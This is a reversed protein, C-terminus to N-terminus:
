FEGDNAPSAEGQRAGSDRNANLAAKVEERLEGECRGHLKHLASRATERLQEDKHELAKLLAPVAGPNQLEGLAYAASQRLGADASSLLPALAALAQPSGTKGLAHCATNRISADRDKLMPVLRKLALPTDLAEVAILAQRRVKQLAELEWDKPKFGNRWRRSLTGAALIRSTTRPAKVLEQFFKLSRDSVDETQEFGSLIAGAPGARMEPNPNKAAEFVAVRCRDDGACYLVTAAERRVHKDPDALLPLLRDLITATRRRDKGARWRLARIVAARVTADTDLLVNM